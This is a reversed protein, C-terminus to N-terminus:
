SNINIRRSKISTNTYHPTFLLSVNDGVLSASFLGLDSDTTVSAYETFYVETNNHTLLLETSHYKANDDHEIQVIYKATRYETKNFTDVVQNITTTTLDESTGVLLGSVSNEVEASDLGDGVLGIRGTPGIYRGGCIYIVNTGNVSTPLNDGIFNLIGAKYDFFWEDNNGSGAAFLRTGSTQPNSTGSPAAYVKVQYAAGFEVPIWNELNTKWTRNATSTNDEVAEVASEGNASDDYIEVYLTTDAPFVQPILESYAWIQDGRILMPSSLAENPAAKISNQDTKAVGYGVKKWLFDVKQNDSIAM